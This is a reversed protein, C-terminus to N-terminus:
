HAVFLHLRIEDEYNGKSGLVGDPEHTPDYADGAAAIISPLAHCCSPGLTSGPAVTKPGLDLCDEQLALSAVAGRPDM